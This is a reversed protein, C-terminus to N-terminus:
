KVELPLGVYYGGKELEIGTHKKTDNKTALWSAGGFRPQNVRRHVGSCETIFCM